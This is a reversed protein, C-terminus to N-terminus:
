DNIQFNSYYNVHHRPSSDNVHVAGDINSFLVVFGDRDYSFESKLLEVTTFFYDM